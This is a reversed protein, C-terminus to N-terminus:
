PVPYIRSDSSVPRALTFILRDGSVNAYAVRARGSDPGEVRWSEGDAVLTMRSRQRWWRNIQDPLAIWIEDTNVAEALFSLLDEYFRRAPNHLLYDPHTNISILGHREMITRAQIKWLDIGHERLIHFLTYDQTTTLPLELIQGVFYPFVTCCGGRQPDLHAVNPVSMDYEFALADYWDLNRYLIASRFGKAGWARGYANISEARTRFQREDCYLNGDHNLDQVNIEHGRESIEQLFTPPVHYRREPVLQFSSHFGFSEDIDMLRPCFDRGRATEVDHTLIAASPAGDPWFWIFPLTTIGRAKLALLLMNELLREVTLDVPWSPFRIEQWGRFYIRQLPIRVWAPLLPRFSYYVDRFLRPPAPGALIAHSTAPYREHTLNEVAESLDFPLQLNGGDIRVDGHLDPLNTVSVAPQPSCSRGYCVLDRGFRFYGNESSLQGTLSATVFQPPCRYYDFLAKLV